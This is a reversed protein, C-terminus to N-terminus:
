KGMALKRITKPDIKNSFFALTRQLLQCGSVKLLCAFLEKFQEILNFVYM